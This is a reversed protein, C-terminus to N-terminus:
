SRGSRSATASRGPSVARPTGPQGDAVVVEAKAAPLRVQEPDLELDLLDLAATSHGPAEEDLLVVLTRGTDAVAADHGRREVLRHRQGHLSRPNPGQGPPQLHVQERRRPHAREDGDRRLDRLAGGIAEQNGGARLAVLPRHDRLAGAMEGDDISSPGTLYEM